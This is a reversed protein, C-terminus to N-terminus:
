ERNLIWMCFYRLKLKLKECWSKEEKVIERMQKVREQRAAYEAVYAERLEEKTKSKSKFEIEDDSSSDSFDCM